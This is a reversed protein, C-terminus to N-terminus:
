IITVTRREWTKKWDEFVRASMSDSTTFGARSYSNDAAMTRMLILCAVRIFTIGDFNEAGTDLILVLYERSSVLDFDVDKFDV